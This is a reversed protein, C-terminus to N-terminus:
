CTSDSSFTEVSRTTLTTPASGTSAVCSSVMALETAIFGEPPNVAHPKEKIPLFGKWEYRGDGPVPVLGSWHTRIPAIGVSQWGITGSPDAWIMNEGPINSYACADRFEDALIASRVRDHDILQATANILAVTTATPSHAYGAPAQGRGGDVQAPPQQAHLAVIASVVVLTGLLLARVKM